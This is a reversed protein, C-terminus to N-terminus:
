FRKRPLPEFPPGGPHFTLMSGGKSSSLIVYWLQSFTFVQKFEDSAWFSTWLMLSPEQETPEIAVDKCVIRSNSLNRVYSSGTMLQRFYFGTAMESILLQRPTSHLSTPPPPPVSPFLVNRIESPASTRTSLRRWRGDWTQRFTKLKCEETWPLQM